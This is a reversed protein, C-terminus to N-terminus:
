GAKLMTEIVAEIVARKDSPLGVLKNDISVRSSKDFPNRMLLSGPDTDYVESAIELFDQAYPYIGREIRPLTAQTIKLYDAASEQTLGRFKRWEALYHRQRNRESKKVSVMIRNYFLPKIKEVVVCVCVYMHKVLMYAAPM